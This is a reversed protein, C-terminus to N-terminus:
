PSADIDGALFLSRVTAIGGAVIIGGDVLVSNWGLEGTLSTSIVHKRVLHIFQAFPHSGEMSPWYESWEQWLTRGIIVDSVGVLAKGM